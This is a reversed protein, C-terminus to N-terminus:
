LRGLCLSHKWEGVPYTASAPTCLKQAVVVINQADGDETRGICGYSSVRQANLDGRLAIVGSRFKSCEYQEKVGPQLTPM